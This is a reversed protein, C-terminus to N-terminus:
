REAARTRLLRSLHLLVPRGGCGGGGHIGEGGETRAATVEAAVGRLDEAFTRTTAGEGHPPGPRLPVATAFPGFVLHADPLAHDRGTVALGLILDDQGTVAALTRYYATLLSVFLTTGAEGAVRRLVAVRNADLTFGTCRYPSAPSSVRAPGESSRVGTRPPSGRAGPPPRRRASWCPWMTASPAAFRPPETGGRLLRDYAALLEGGLLAVSYGDGILHHAHVVLVHEDPALTILRLRLLPWAWSELHREREEAVRSPLLGPDALTEFVVPLRLAPPLEQQVPPRAGAPFVTRLMPHRVVCTDVARQFLDPDLRGHVRMRALWAPDADPAM